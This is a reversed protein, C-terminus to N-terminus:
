LLELISSRLTGEMCCPKNALNTSHLLRRRDLRFLRLGEDFGSTLEAAVIVRRVKVLYQFFDRPMLRWKM